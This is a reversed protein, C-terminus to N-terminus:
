ELLMLACVQLNIHESVFPVAEAATSASDIMFSKESGDMFSIKCLVPLKKSIFRLEQISPVIKRARNVVTRRLIRGAFGAYDKCAAV